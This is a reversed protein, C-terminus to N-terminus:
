EIRFQPKENILTVILNEPNKPSLNWKCDQERTM